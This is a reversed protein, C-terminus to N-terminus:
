GEEDTDADRKQSMRDFRETVTRRLAPISTRAIKKASFVL